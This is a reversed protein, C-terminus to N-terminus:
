CQLNRLVSNLLQEKSFPKVLVDNMGVALCKEVDEKFGHATAACIRIDAIEEDQHLRIAETAAFGDMIPMQCDMIILDFKKSKEYLIDLAEKGNSAFTINIKTQSLMERFLVQNIENDEVILTSYASLDHVYILKNSATWEVYHHFRELTISELSVHSTSVPANILTLKAEDNIISDCASNSSNLIPNILVCKQSACMQRQISAICTAVPIEGSLGAILIVQWSANAKLESILESVLTCIKMRCKKTNAQAQWIDAQVENAVLLLTDPLAGEVSVEAQEDKVKLPLTFWFTSGKGFTSQLGIEGGMLEVLQKSITLGLGTGQHIRSFSSDVQQFESFLKSADQTKIGVGSDSVECRLINNDQYRLALKIQGSDTFKVANSCLNDIVQAIRSKDGFIFRPLNHDISVSFICAKKQAALKHVQTKNFSFDVLDFYSEQLKQSGSELKAYDLVQNVLFLLSEASQNILNLYHIQEPALDTSSLLEGVGIVGAIPTRLEHSMNALFSSKALAAQEADIAAQRLNTIDQLAGKLKIPKGNKFEAYGVSRVWIAKGEATTFPLELDFSEGTEICREVAAKITEQASPAYYSIADDIVVLQNVPLEHIKYIEESWILEDTLLDLSYFGLKAIRATTELLETNNRKQMELRRRNTEDKATFYFGQLIDSEFVPQLSANIQVRDGGNHRLEIEGSYSRGESLAERLSNIQHNNNEVLIFSLIKQGSLETSTMGTLNVAAKNVWNICYKLDLLFVADDSSEAVHKLRKNENIRRSLNAESAALSKTTENLRSAPTITALVFEENKLTLPRLGISVYITKGSAHQAPFSAGDGMSRSFPKKFFTDFHAQHAERMTPILLNYLPKGLIDEISFGFIEAITINCFEVIGRQNVLVMGSALNNLLVSLDIDANAASLTVRNSM